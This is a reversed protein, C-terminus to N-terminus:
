TSFVASSFVACFGPVRYVVFMVIFRVFCHGSILPVSFRVVDCWEVAGRRREETHTHARKTRARESFSRSEGETHTRTHTITKDARVIIGGGGNEERRRAQTSAKHACVSVTARGGKRKVGKIILTSM